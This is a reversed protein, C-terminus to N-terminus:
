GDWGRVFQILDKAANPKAIKSIQIKMKQLETPHSLLRSVHKELDGPRVVEISAQNSVLWTANRTEQGPIPASIAMPLSKVLSECTTAGGSKAVLLDSVSMLEHMNSVFGMLVVPFPFRKKALSEYLTQNRGCVVLAQVKDRFKELELLWKETPGIGFSGSSFLINFRGKTLGFKETLNERDQLSLFDRHVPIGGAIIQKEPVKWGLLAKKSEEAMVWYADTGENIWFSHPMVDTIVTLIRSKILGKKKASALVEASFFHTSIIVEPNERQVFNILEEGQLRNWLHRAPRLVSYVSKIDLFEYMFGWFRPALKVSYFYANPYSKRYYSPTFEFADYSHVDFNNKNLNMEAQISEAIKRHGEGATSYFIFVKM